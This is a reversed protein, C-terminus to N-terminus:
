LEEFEDEPGDDGLFKRVALAIVVLLVLVFLGKLKGGRGSEEDDEEADTDADIEVVAGGEDDASKQVTDGGDTTAEVPTRSTSASLSASDDADEETDEESDTGLGLRRQVLEGIDSSFQMDSTFENDDAHLHLEILTLKDAM